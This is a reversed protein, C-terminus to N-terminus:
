DSAHVKQKLQFSHAALDCLYAESMFYDFEHHRSPRLPDSVDHSLKGPHCMILGDHQSHRLFQKFYHRYNVAQKFNYIGSFSSNSSVSQQKLRNILTAGGLIAILQRKPFGDVSFIDRWGHCTKRIFTSSPLKSCVALLVERIGPFQHIHQHGDIFDPLAKMSHTFVALQAQIEDAIAVPNLRRLYANKLLVPLSQFQTGHHKKWAESLAEGHTFDLHLGIYTTPQLPQLAPHWEDWSASNVMCSIANIRKQEALQVIGDTISQNQAYDDACIVIRKGTLPNM